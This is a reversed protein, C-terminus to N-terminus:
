KIRGDKNEKEDRKHELIDILYNKIESRWAYWIIIIIIATM